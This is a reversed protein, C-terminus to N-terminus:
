KSAVVAEGSRKFFREKTGNELVRYGVKAPKDVSADVLAVNSVHISAEKQTAGDPNQASQKAFRTVINVGKVLVRDKDLFVREVEGRNGKHKGAIVQVLDGRKIKFKKQTM